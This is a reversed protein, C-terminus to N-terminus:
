AGAGLGAGSFPFYAPRLPSDGALEALLGTAYAPLDLGLGLKLVTLLVTGLAMALLLFFFWFLLLSLRNCRGERRHYNRWDRGFLFVYYWRLRGLGIGGRVDFPHRHGRQAGLAAKLSLLQEESFSGAVKEPLRSLIGAILPDQRIDKGGEQEQQKM